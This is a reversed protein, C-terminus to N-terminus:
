RQAAQQRRQTYDTKIEGHEKEYAAIVDSISVYMDKLTAMSVHIIATAEAIAVSAFSGDPGLLPRPRMFILVADNGAIQVTVSSANAVPGEIAKSAAVLAQMQEPTPQAPDAPSTGPTPKQNSAM